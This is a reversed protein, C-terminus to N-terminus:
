RGAEDTGGTMAAILIPAALRKGFLTVSPDVEDVRMDPLADHVLRVGEFLTSASRFGVEGTACLTLHDTKRQQLDSTPLAGGSPGMKSRADEGEDDGSM